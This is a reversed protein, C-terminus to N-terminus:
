APADNGALYAELQQISVRLNRGLKLVRVPFQGSRALEYSLSTGIGLMRGAEPVSVTRAGAKTIGRVELQATM